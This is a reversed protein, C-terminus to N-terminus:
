GPWERLNCVLMMIKLCPLNQYKKNEVNKDNSDVSKSYTQNSITKSIKFVVSMIEKLVEQIPILDHMAHSLSIYEAEMKSLAIQTQMKSAWLLPVGKLL